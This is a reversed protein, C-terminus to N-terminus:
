ADSSRRERLEEGMAQLVALEEDPLTKEGGLLRTLLLTKAMSEISELKFFADLVTEGVAVVGHNALLIVDHDPLYQPLDAHIADTSPTGYAAIPVRGYLVIMEPYAKTEIPQNAVAYATTFPPHAHVVAHIEPRHEYVALHLKFESSVRQSSDTLRGISDTEVIQDETLYGKCVATPTVYINGGARMSLNGEFANVMNKAYMLKATEIIESRAKKSM